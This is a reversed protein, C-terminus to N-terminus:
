LRNVIKGLKSIWRHRKSSVRECEKNECKLMHSQTLFQPARPTNSGLFQTRCDRASELVVFSFNHDLLFKNLFWDSDENRNLPLNMTATYAEELHSAEGNFWKFGYACATPTQSASSCLNSHTAKELRQIFAPLVSNRADTSNCKLLIEGQM